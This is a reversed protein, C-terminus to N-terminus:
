VRWNMAGNVAHSDSAGINNVFQVPFETSVQQSELLDLEREFEDHRIDM